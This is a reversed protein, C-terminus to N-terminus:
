VLHTWLSKQNHQTKELTAELWFVATVCQTESYVGCERFLHGKIVESYLHSSQWTADSQFHALRLWQITSLGTMNVKGPRSHKTYVTSEVEKHLMHHEGERM